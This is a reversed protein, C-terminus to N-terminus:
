FNAAFSVFPAFTLTSKAGEDPGHAIEWAEGYIISLLDFAYLGFHMSGCAPDLLKIERPGQSRPASTFPSGSCSRGHLKM